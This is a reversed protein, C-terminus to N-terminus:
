KTGNAPTQSALPARRYYYYDKETAGTFSNLMAGVIKGPELADLGRQLKRKETTGQRTVLLIGDALRAWVSTDGLPLVPPSDIIIWDFWATLEDIMKALKASQILELPNEPPNGAPLIWIGPAELHCISSTFSREGQLWESVGPISGLGFIQAQSPRRLDGDLLLVKQRSGSAITCALNAAAFSKGEQPATSTILVKKLQRDRRLHRLRVGLLRFAEAAPSNVEAVSVLRSRSSLSVPVNRIRNFDQRVVDAQSLEPKEFSEAGSAEGLLSKLGSLPSGSSIGGAASDGVLDDLGQASAARDEARQLLDTASTVAALQPGALESESRQLADFIRSM